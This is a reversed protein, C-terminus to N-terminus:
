SVPEPETNDPQPPDFDTLAVPEASEAAANAVALDDVYRALGAASASASAPVQELPGPQVVSESGGGGCGALLAVMALSVISKNMTTEESM